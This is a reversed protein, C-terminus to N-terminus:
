NIMYSVIIKSVPLSFNNGGYYKEIIESLYGPMLLEFKSTTYDKMWSIIEKNDDTDMNRLKLSSENIQSIDLYFRDLLEMTLNSYDWRCKDLVITFDDNIKLFLCFKIVTKANSLFAKMHRVNEGLYNYLIYIVLGYDTNRHNRKNRLISKCRM